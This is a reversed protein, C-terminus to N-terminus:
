EFDLKQINFRRYVELPVDPMFYRPPQIIEVIEKDIVMPLIMRDDVSTFGWIWSLVRALQRRVFKLGRKYYKM